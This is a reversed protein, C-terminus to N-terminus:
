IVLLLQLRSLANTKSSTIFQFNSTTVILISIIIIAFQKQPMTLKVLAM